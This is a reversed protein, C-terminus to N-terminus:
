KVLTATSVSGETTIPESKDGSEHIQSILGQNWINPFIGSSLVTNLLKLIALQFKLDTYKIMENLIDDVGCAKKLKLSSIKDQLEKLTFPSDIPNQYDKIVSELTQLKDQIHTQEKNKVIPGFLNSFHNVWLDGNQISLEERKRKNLTNWNEWFHNSDISEEIQNIQNRAHQDRKRRITNRYQKLTEYYHLRINNNDPDRHKQNSLNRLTKRTNKCEDDFWKDNINNKNRSQSNSVKLNSQLASTDFINNLSEVAM